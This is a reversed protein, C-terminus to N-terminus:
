GWAFLFNEKEIEPKIFSMVVTDIPNESPTKGLEVTYKVASLGNKKGLEILEESSYHHAFRRLYSSNKLSAVEEDSKGVFTIKADPDFVAITGFEGTILQHREYNVPYGSLQHERAFDSIVCMGGPKLVRTIEQIAAQRAQTAVEPDKDTLNTMVGCLVAVDASEKKFPLKLITGQVRDAVSENTNLLGKKCLDFAVVQALPFNEKLAQTSRGEGSGLDLITIKSDGKLKRIEEVPIRTSGPIEKQDMWFSESVLRTNESM